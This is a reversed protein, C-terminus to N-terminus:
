WVVLANWVSSLAASQTGDPHLDALDRLHHRTLARQIATSRTEFADYYADILGLANTEVEDYVLARTVLADALEVASWYHQFRAEREQLLNGLESDFRRAQSEDGALRSRIEEMQVCSLLAVASSEREWMYSYARVAGELAAVRDEGSSVIAQSTYYAARLDYREGSRSLQELLSISYISGELLEDARGRAKQVSRSTTGSERAIEAALRYQYTAYKEIGHLTASADDASLARAVLGVARDFDGLAAWASALEEGLQGFNDVWSREVATEEILTLEEEALERGLRGEGEVGVVEVRNVIEQVRSLAERFTLPRTAPGVTELPEEIGSLRFGSDGYCQYAGWTSHNPAAEWAAVRARHVAPGFTRGRLMVQYFTAAFTEAARDHVAWGAVVVARVGLALLQRALIAALRNLNSRTVELQDSVVSTSWGHGCNVFVLEPIVRLQGFRQATLVDDHGVLIGSRSPDDPQFWGHAAIHAIQYDDAFLSTTIEATVENMARYEADFCLSTVAYAGHSLVEAVGVAEEYAGQLPPGSRGVPPNGIVLAKPSSARRVLPTESMRLQRVMPSRLALPKRGLVGDAVRLSLMEWPIEATVDDVELEMEQAFMFDSKLRDPVLLEFLITHLGGIPAAEAVAESLMRDLERRDVPHVVTGGRALGGGVAFELQLLSPRGPNVDSENVDGSASIRIRFWLPSGGLDNEVAGGEIQLDHPGTLTLGDAHDSARAYSAMLAGAVRFAREAEPVYREWLELRTFLGLAGRGSDLEGNAEVVATVISHVASPVSLGQEGTVGLLVSSIGLDPPESSDSASDLVYRVLAARVTMVLRQPTLEGYRGLGVVVVGAAPHQRRGARILLSQGIDEPYQDRVIRDSLRGGFRRDVFGEAGGLPWGAYHGVLVPYAASDFSGNFVSVEVAPRLPPVHIRIDSPVDVAVELDSAPLSGDSLAPAVELSSTRHRRQDPPLQGDVGSAPDAPARGLDNRGTPSRRDLSVSSDFSHVAENLDGIERCVVSRIDLAAEHSPDLRLAADLDSLAGSLNGERYKRYGREFQEQATLARESVTPADAAARQLRAVEAVEATPTAEIPVDIPLLYEEVLEQVAADFWKPPLEIAQYRAIREGLGDALSDRISSFRFESTHAPIITRGTDLATEIERRLWDNPESCRELTGPTLVLLFYPRARIQNLIVDEFVGARIHKVDYFADIGAATLLKHLMEVLTWSVGHRYSIFVDNSPM